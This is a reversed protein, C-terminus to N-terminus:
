NVYMYFNEKKKLVDFCCQEQMSSLEHLIILYNERIMYSAIWKHYEYILHFPVLGIRYSSQHFHNLKYSSDLVVFPIELLTLSQICGKFEYMPYVILTRNIFLQEYINELVENLSGQICDM